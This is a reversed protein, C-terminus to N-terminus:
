VPLSASGAKRFRNARWNTMAPLTGRRACGHIGARRWGSWRGGVGNQVHLVLLEDYVRGSQDM